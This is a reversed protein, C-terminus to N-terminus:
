INGALDTEFVRHNNRDTILVNGNMLLNADNPYNLANEDSFSIADSNWIILGAQNVIIVRNNGTDSIIVDGNVQKDANHAWSLDDKYSWIINGTRDIEYIGGTLPHSLTGGDTIFIHDNDLLDVDHVTRPQYNEAYLTPMVISGLVVYLLLIRKNIIRSISNKM